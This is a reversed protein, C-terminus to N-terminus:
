DGVLWTFITAYGSWYATFMEGWDKWSTSYSRWDDLERSDNAFAASLLKGIFRLPLTLILWAAWLAWAIGGVTTVVIVYFALWILSFPLRILFFIFGM